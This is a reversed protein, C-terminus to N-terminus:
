GDSRGSVEEFTVFGVLRVAGPEKPRSGEEVYASLRELWRAPDVEEERELGEEIQTVAGMPLPSALLGM